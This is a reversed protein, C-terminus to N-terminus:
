GTEQESGGECTAPGVSCKFLELEEKSLGFEILMIIEGIEM